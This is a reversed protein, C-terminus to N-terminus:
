SQSGLARMRPISCAAGVPSVVSRMRRIATSWASSSSTASAALAHLGSLLVGREPSRPDRNVSLVERRVLPDLQEALTEVERMAGRDKLFRFDAKGLTRQRGAGSGEIHSQGHTSEPQRSSTGSLGTLGHGAAAPDSGDRIAVPIQEVSRPFWFQDFHSDFERWEDRNRCCLARMGHRARLPDGPRGSTLLEFLDVMEGVGIRYGQLRLSNVFDLLRRVAVGDTTTTM